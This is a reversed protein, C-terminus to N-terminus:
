AEDTEAMNVFGNSFLEVIMQLCSADPAPQIFM